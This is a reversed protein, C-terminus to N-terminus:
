EDGALDVDGVGMTDMWGSGADSDEDPRRPSKKEVMTEFKTELIGLRDAINTLLALRKECVDLRFRADSLSKYLSDNVDSVRNDLGVVKAQVDTLRKFLELVPENVVVGPERSSDHFVLAM